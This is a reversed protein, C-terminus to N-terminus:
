TVLEVPLRRLVIKDGIGVGGDLFFPSFEPNWQSVSVPERRNFDSGCGHDRVTPGCTFISAQEYVHSTLGDGWEV